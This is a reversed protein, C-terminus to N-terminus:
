SQAAVAGLAADVSYTIFRSNIANHIDVCRTVINQLYESLDGDLIEDITVFSLDAALRGALRRVHTADAAGTAHAIATVASQVENAAFRISRPLNQDLLIFQLIWKPRLEVTHIKCYPEFSNCMRLLAAWAVFEDPSPDDSLDTGKMGFHAELLWATAMARELARALRIFQWGEGHNFTADIIGAIMQSGRHISKLFPHPGANWLRSISQSQMSLHLHNIEEWLESTISERVQRANERANRVCSVVSSPNSRDFVLANTVAQPDACIDMPLDVRLSSLLCMWGMSAAWPSEDLAVNLQVDLARSTHEARELYRSMWYLSDAVRSLMM